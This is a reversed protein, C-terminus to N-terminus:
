AIGDTESVRQPTEAPAIRAHGREEHRDEKRWPGSGDPAGPCMDPMRLQVDRISPARIPKKETM